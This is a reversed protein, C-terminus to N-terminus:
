KIYHECHCTDKKLIVVIDPSEMYITSHRKVKFPIIGQNWLDQEILKMYKIGDEEYLLEHVLARVPGLNGTKKCLKKRFSYRKKFVNKDM